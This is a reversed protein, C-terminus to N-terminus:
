AAQVPAEADAPEIAGIVDGPNNEAEMSTSGSNRALVDRMKKDRQAQKERRAERDAQQQAHMEIIQQYQRLRLNHADVKLRHLRVGFDLEAALVRLAMICFVVVILATIIMLDGSVAMALTTAMDSADVRGIRLKVVCSQWGGM